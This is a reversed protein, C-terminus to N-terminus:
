AAAKAGGHRNAALYILAALAGLVAPVTAMAQVADAFFGAIASGVFGMGMQLSGMLAAASGANRPFLALAATTVGPMIFAMGFLWLCLPLVVEAV